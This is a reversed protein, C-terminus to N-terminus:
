SKPNPTLKLRAFDGPSNNGVWLGIQGGRRSSLEDVVLCPSSADNVFVSVRGNELVIRVRFWGSPDPVPAIAAEYKGPHTERLKPWSFEPMSVYQVARARRPDPAKFNFPRFYIADYTEDSAGRFAIGVFSQQPVDQGRLEVEITGDHFDSDALWVAGDNARADLRLADPRDPIASIARNHVRWASSDFAASLDPTLSASRLLAPFSATALVLLLRLSPHM